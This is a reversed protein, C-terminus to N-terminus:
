PFTLLRIFLLEIKVRRWAPASAAAETEAGAVVDAAASSAKLFSGVAVRSPTRPLSTVLAALARSLSLTLRPPPEMWIRSTTM